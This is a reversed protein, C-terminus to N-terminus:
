GALEMSVPKRIEKARAGISVPYVGTFAALNFEEAPRDTAAVMADVSLFGLYDAGFALRMQEITMNAAMLEDQSPTDIGYFDPFRVPPSAILVSVSRAGQERALAILRPITNGRVISDDILYIDRGKIREAIMTHKRSLDSKRSAQSPQMFTRGVYRNKIILTENPLGTKEAYGEAAPVSTDPVAVVVARSTDAHHPPHLEALAYGFRRRIENVRQGAMHSDHRAFYVLEFM